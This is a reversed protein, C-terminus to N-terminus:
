FFFGCFLPLCFVLNDAFFGSCIAVVGFMVGLLMNTDSFKEYFDNKKYFDLCSFLYGIIFLSIPFHILLYHYTEKEYVM